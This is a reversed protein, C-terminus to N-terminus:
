KGADVEFFESVRFASLLRHSSTATVRYTGPAAARISGTWWGPHKRDPALRLQKAGVRKGIARVQEIRATIRVTRADFPRGSASYAGVRLEVPKGVRYFPQSIDLALGDVAIRMLDDSERRLTVRPLPTSPPPAGNMPERISDCLHQHVIPDAIMM